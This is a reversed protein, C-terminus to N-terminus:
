PNMRQLTINSGNKRIAGTAGSVDQAWQVDIVGATSGNVITGQMTLNGDVDTFESTLDASGIVGDNESRGFAVAGAPLQLKVKAANTTFKMNLTFNVRENAGLRYGAMESDDALTDTDARTVDATAYYIEPRKRSIAM